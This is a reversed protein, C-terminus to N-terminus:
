PQAHSWDVEPHIQRALDEVLRIFRPGPVCAYDQDFIVVRGSKVAAVGKVDNWDDLLKQRGLQQVLGPQVLDVIVDPNLSLIGETSVVPYRVGRRSYANKGGAWDIMTDIYSDDAAVYLDALHGSGHTRDLVVLVRPRPLNETRWRIRDVREQLDRAMRRGEPGRGCKGGITAFSEIVGKVTQQNVVLTELGLKEFNPLAHSQEELMIVLDPKLAMVAELNPDYYGGVDGTMKIDEVEPPYHCDRAVGKVRDGLGLAFLTETLSPAMSVIRQCKWRPSAAPCTPGDIRRQAVLSAVFVLIIAMILTFRYKM